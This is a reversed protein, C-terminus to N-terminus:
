KGPLQPAAAAPGDGKSFNVLEVDFLLVSNPAIGQTGQAGYALGSPLLIKRKEGKKMGILMEDWGPIVMGVGIKFQIPDKQKASSDFVKGDLLKGEYHVDVQDGAKPTAGTGEKEVIYFIGSETKKAELKNAALYDQITKEDTTKQQTMEAEQSKQFDEPTQLNLVKVKFTLESGKKIFPPMPQMMKAFLTDANVFFTASDGKALTLLGEEFSAKFPAEQLVFKIPTKEKYTDRLVSDASKLVLNFSIVDGIKAKPAKDDHEHIQYKLGSESVKTRYQDCSVAIVAAGLVWGISKLKM